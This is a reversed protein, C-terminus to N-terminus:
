DQKSSVKDLIFGLASFVAAPMLWGFGLEFFPMIRLIELSYGYVVQLISFFFSMMVGLRLTYRGIREGFLSLIVTTLVPPYVINLVPSAFTILKEVGLSATFTSIVCVLIVLSKYGLKGKILRQIYECSSSVLAIATSLCALAAIVGFFIHGYNGPILGKVINTLLVSKSTHMDYMQSVTAGLYTLGMYIIFLGVAAIIGAGVTVKTIDRHSKYGRQRAGNIILVGLLTAALVDMSQYGAEIGSAILTDTKPNPAIEGLPNIIGLIIILILGGFLLPTLIKGVIDVVKSKNICLIAVILFFIGYFLYKNIGQIYPMLEYTTAATRPVTIVPGLCLVISWMMALSMVKGLPKLMDDFSEKRIQAIIAIVALGIDAIFYGMFGGFWENGGELGMYPPFIMNGAGFFMAFLAAGLILIDKYMTKKM